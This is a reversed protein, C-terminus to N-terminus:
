RQRVWWHGDLSFGADGRARNIDKRCTNDTRNFTFRGALRAEIRDYAETRHLRKPFGEIIKVMAGRRTQPKGKIIIPRRNSLTSVTPTRKPRKEKTKYFWSGNGPKLSPNNALKRILSKGKDTQAYEKGGVVDNELLNTLAVELSEERLGM